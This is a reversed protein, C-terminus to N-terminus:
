VVSKRDLRQIGGQVRKIREVSGTFGNAHDAVDFCHFFANRHLDLHFFDVTQAVAFEVFHKRHLLRGASITDCAPYASVSDPVSHLM